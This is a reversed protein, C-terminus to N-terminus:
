STHSDVVPADPVYVFTMSVEAVDTIWVVFMYVVSWQYRTYETSLNLVGDDGVCVVDATLGFDGNATSVVAGPIGVLRDADITM